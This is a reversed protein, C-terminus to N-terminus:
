SSANAREQLKARICLVSYAHLDEGFAAKMATQWHVGCLKSVIIVGNKRIWASLDNQEDISLSDIPNTGKRKTATSSNAKPANM